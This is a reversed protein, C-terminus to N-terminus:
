IVFSGKEPFEVSLFTDPKAALRLFLHCSEGMNKLDESSLILTQLATECPFRAATVKM